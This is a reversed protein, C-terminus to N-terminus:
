ARMSLRSVTRQRESQPRDEQWVRWLPRDSSRETLLTINAENLGATLHRFCALGSMRAPRYIAPSSAVPDERKSVRAARNDMHM